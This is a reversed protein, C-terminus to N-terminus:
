DQMIPVFSLLLNLYVGQIPTIYLPSRLLNLKNYGHLIKFVQILEGRVRRLDLTTLNLTSLRDVYSLNSLNGYKTCRRQVMELRKTHKVSTPKWVTNAYELKPRITSVYLKKIIDNTKHQFCKFIKKAIATSKSCVKIVQDDWDLNPSIYVGLDKVLYTEGIAISNIFYTCKNKLQLKNGFHMVECKKIHLFLLWVQSWDFILNLDNQLILSQNASVNVSVLKTDDAYTLSPTSLLGFLDNVYIIFFLPGLVSGQPVGSGIVKWLSVHDGMIVRQKRNSLFSQSWSLLNGDIGISELKKLLRKHPVRDFAKEFDLYVTDVSLGTNLANTLIDMYEILNTVTNRNPFFGHQRESIISYKILHDTIHNSIIRETFKCLVSTLSIGRYNTPLLKSGTKFIPTINAMKWDSPVTGSDMSIQLLLSLPLSLSHSCERLVFPHIQDPGISKSVNLISLRKEIDIPDFTIPSISPARSPILPINDDENKHFVSHFWDNFVECILKPDTILDESTQLVRINDKSKIKSNIYKFIMKPNTKSKMAINNEYFKLDRRVLKRVAKNIYKYKEKIDTSIFRKGTRRISKWLRKKKIILRKLKISQWVSKNKCSFVRYPKIFKEVGESYIGYFILMIEDISKNNFLEKWQSQYSNFYNSLGIYDGKKYNLSSQKAVINTINCVYDFRLVHHGQRNFLFPEEHNICSVRQNMDTFILDLVSTYNFDAKLFTGNSVLQSLQLNAVFNAFSRSVRNSKFGVPFYPYGSNSWHITPHNFDGCIIVGNCKSKSAALLNSLIESDCLSKKTGPPRYICGCLINEYGVNIICWIQESEVSLLDEKLEYSKVRSNNVVICVGGGKGIRDKFYVSYGQVNKLSTDTWWTECVFAVDIRNSILESCFAEYKNNLSTVNSYWCRLCSNSPFIQRSSKTNKSFQMLYCM